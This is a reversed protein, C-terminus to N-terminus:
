PRHTERKEYHSLPNLSLHWTSDTTLSFLVYPTSLHQELNYVEGLFRGGLKWTYLM